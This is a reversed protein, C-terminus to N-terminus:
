NDDWPDVIYEYCDDCLLGSDGWEEASNYVNLVTTEPSSLLEVTYEDNTEACNDCIVHYGEVIYGLITTDINM